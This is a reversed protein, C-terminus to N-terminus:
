PRKLTYEFIPAGAPYSVKFPPWQTKNDASQAGFVAGQPVKPFERSSGPPINGIPQWRRYGYYDVNQSYIVVAIPSMNFVRVLGVQESATLPPAAVILAAAFAWLGLFSRRIRPRKM